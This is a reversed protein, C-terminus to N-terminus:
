SLVPYPNYTPPKRGDWLWGGLYAGYTARAKPGVALDMRLLMWFAIRTVVGNELEARAVHHTALITSPDLASAV